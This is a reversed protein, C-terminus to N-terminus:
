ARLQGVAVSLGRPVQGARGEVDLVSLLIHEVDVSDDRRRLSMRSARDLARKARDSWALEGAASASDPGVAEAVKSRCGAPTAGCAALARGAPSNVDTVIGLLLHETGLQAHRLDRAESEAS